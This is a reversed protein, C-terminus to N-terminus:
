LEQVNLTHYYFDSSYKKYEVHAGNNTSQHVSINMPLKGVKINWIMYKM